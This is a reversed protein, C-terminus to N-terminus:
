VIADKHLQVKYPPSALLWTDHCDSCQSTISQGARSEKLKSSSVIPGPLPYELLSRLCCLPFQFFCTAARPSGCSLYLSRDTHVAADSVGSSSAAEELFGPNPIMLM